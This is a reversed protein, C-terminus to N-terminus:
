TVVTLQVILHFSTRKGQVSILLGSGVRGPLDSESCLTDDDAYIAIDFILYNYLDNICLLFFTRGFIYGQPVGVNVGYKHSSNWVLVM